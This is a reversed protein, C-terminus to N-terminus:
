FGVLSIMFERFRAEFDALDETIYARFVNEGFTAKAPANTTLRAARARRSLRGAAVEALMRDFGDAYAGNGGHRLFVILAWAQACYPETHRTRSQVIVQGADTGLLESLPLLADGALAERLSNMRFTNRRPTFVARERRFDFGECYCALGENLWAPIRQDFQSGFYQHLGEHAIVSLTYTRPSINYAVCTGGVAFGGVQIRSYVDYREPFNERVFRDWQRQNIFLYTKLRSRAEPPPPLLDAYQRYVAELFGPLYDRLETDDVTTYIDFHDTTLHVGETGSYSWPEDIVLVPGAAQPGCGGLAGATLFIGLAM